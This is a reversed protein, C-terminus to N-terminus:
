KNCLWYAFSLEQALVMFILKGVVCRLRISYFFLQKGYYRRLYMAISGYYMHLYMAINGYYRRLYMAINGYYRRLYMSINGYYRHLYMYICELIVMTFIYTGPYTVM